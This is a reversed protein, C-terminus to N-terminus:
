ETRMIGNKNSGVVDDPKRGQEFMLAFENPLESQYVAEVTGYPVLVGPIRSELSSVM